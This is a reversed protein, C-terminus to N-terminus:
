VPGYFGLLLPPLPPAAPGGGGGGGGGGGLNKSFNVKLWNVIITFFLPDFIYVMYLEEFVVLLKVRTWTIYNRYHMFSIKISVTDKTTCIKKRKGHRDGRPFCYRM